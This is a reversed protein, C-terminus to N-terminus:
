SFRTSGSRRRRGAERRRSKMFRRGKLLTKWGAFGAAALGSMLLIFAMPTAASSQRPVQATQTFQDPNSQNTSRRQDDPETSNNVTATGPFALNL